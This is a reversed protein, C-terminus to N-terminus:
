FVIEKEANASDIFVAVFAWYNVGARHPLELTKPCKLSEKQDQLIIFIYTVRYGINKDSATM